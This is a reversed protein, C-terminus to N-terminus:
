LGVAEGNNGRIFADGYKNKLQGNVYEQQPDLTVPPPCPTLCQRRTHMASGAHSGHAHCRAAGQIVLTLLVAAARPQTSHHARHLLSAMDMRQPVAACRCQPVAAAAAPSTLCCHLPATNSCMHLPADACRHAALSPLPVAACCSATPSPPVAACRCATPSTFCNLPAKDAPQAAPGQAAPSCCHPSPLLAKPLM